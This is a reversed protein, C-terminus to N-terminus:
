AERERNECKVLNAVLRSTEFCNDLNRDFSESRLMRGSNETGNINQGAQM